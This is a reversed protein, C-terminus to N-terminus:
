KERFDVRVRIWLDTETSRSLKMKPTVDFNTQRPKREVENEIFRGVYSLKDSVILLYDPSKDPLGLRRPNAVIGSSISNSFIRPDSSNIPRDFM